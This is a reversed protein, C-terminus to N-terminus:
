RFEEIIDNKLARDYAWSWCIVMQNTMRTGFLVLVFGQLQEMTM